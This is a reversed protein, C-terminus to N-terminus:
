TWRCVAGHTGSLLLLLGKSSRGIRPKCMDKSLAATTGCTILDTSSPGVQVDDDFNLRIQLLETVGLECDVREGTNQSLLLRKLHANHHLTKPTFPRWLHLCYTQLMGSVTQIIAPGLTTSTRLLEM